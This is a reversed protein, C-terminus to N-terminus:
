FIALREIIRNLLKEQNESDAQIKAELQELRKGLAQIQQMARVQNQEMSRQIGPIMNSLTDMQEILNNNGSRVNRVETKVRSIEIKIKKIDSNIRDFQPIVKEVIRTNLKAIELIIREWKSDDGGFLQASTERPQGAFHSIFVFALVLFFLMKILNIFPYRM